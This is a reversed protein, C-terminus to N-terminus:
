CGDVFLDNITGGLESAEWREYATKAHANERITSFYTPKKGHFFRLISVRNTRNAYVFEENENSFVRPFYWHKKEPIWEMGLCIIGVFTRPNRSM